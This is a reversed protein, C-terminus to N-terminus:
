QIASARRRNIAIIRRAYGVWLGRVEDGAKQYAWMVAERADDLVNGYGWCFCPISNEIFRRLEVCRVCTHFTEVYGCSDPWMASFCEYTEGPYIAAGCEDCRHQKRARPTTRSSFIPADYDCYCGMMM